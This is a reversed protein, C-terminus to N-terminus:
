SAGRVLLEPGLQSVSPCGMLALDRDIEARLLELVRSAGAQGGVAVGYVAPRGIFVLRAGLAVAKLIDTGRRFGGDVMVPFAPSVAAVCDVLADLSAQAGDLQRGGHNSVIIGDMGFREARAADEPHAIGKIVIRGKWRERLWAMHSWDLDDRGLRFGSNPEDTIRYGEASAIVNCFRPVRRDVLMSRMFVDALWRPHLLGDLALQPTIRFPIRFGNRENNERNAAVPADVTVVLVGIQSRELRQLLPELVEVRGPIYGQYWLDPAAQCVTEMPTNSLGSLVFPVDAERAASALSCECRHKFMAALGVPAIGFPSAYTRGWLEVTQSRKGVGVLTRPRFRWQRLAAANAALTQCDETGGEAYGLVCRPLTQQARREFDGVSLYRALNM